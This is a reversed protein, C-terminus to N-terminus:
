LDVPYNRPLMGLLKMIHVDRYSVARKGKEKRHVTNAHRYGLDLAMRRQSIRFRKRVDRLEQGTV